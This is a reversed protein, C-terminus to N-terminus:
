ESAVPTASSAGGEGKLDDHVKKVKEERDKRRKENGGRMAETVKGTEKIAQEFKDTRIDYEPIIGKDRDTHIIPRSEGESLGENNNLLREIVREIREGNVSDNINLSTEGFTIKRYLRM